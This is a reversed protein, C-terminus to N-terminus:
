MELDEILTVTIPVTSKVLLSGKAGMFLGDEISRADASAATIATSLGAGILTYLAASLIDTDSQVPTFVVVPRTQITYSRGGISLVNFSINAKARAEFVSMIGLDGELKAGYPIVVRGDFIVPASVFATVSDGEVASSAIGNRISAEIATAAPLLVPKRMSPAFQAAEEAARVRYSWFVSIASTILAIAIVFHTVRRM